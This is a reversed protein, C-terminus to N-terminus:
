EARAKKIKAIKEKLGPRIAWFEEDKLEDPTVLYSEPCNPCTAKIPLTSIFNLEMWKGKWGCVLCQVDIREQDFGELHQIKASM